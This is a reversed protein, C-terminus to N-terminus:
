YGLISFKRYEKFAILVHVPLRTTHFSFTLVTLLSQIGPESSQDDCMLTTNSVQFKYFLIEM